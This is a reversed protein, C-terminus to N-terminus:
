LFLLASREWARALVVWGAAFGLTAWDGARERGSPARGDARVFAAAGGAGVMVAFPGATAGRLAWAGAGVAVIWRVIRLWSPPESSEFVAASVRALALLCLASAVWAGSSLAVGVVSAFAFFVWAGIARSPWLAGGGLVISCSVMVALAERRPLDWCREAVRAAVLALLYGYLAVRPNPRAPGARLRLALAAGYGVGVVIVSPAVEVRLATRVLLWLALACM